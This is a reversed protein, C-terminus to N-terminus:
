SGTGHGQNLVRVVRMEPFVTEVVRQLPYKIAAVGVMLDLVRKLGLPTDDTALNFVTGVVLAGYKQFAMRHRLEHKLKRCYAMISAHTPEFQGASALCERLTQEAKVLDNRSESDELLQLIKSKAFEAHAWFDRNTLQYESVGSRAEFLLANVQRLRVQNEDFAGETESVSEPQFIRTWRKHEYKIEGGFFETHPKVLLADCRILEPLGVYMDRAFAERAVEVMDYCDFPVARELITSLYAVLADATDLQYASRQAAQQLREFEEGSLAHILPKLRQRQKEKRERFGSDHSTVFADLRTSRFITEPDVLIPYMWEIGRYDELEASACITIHKDKKLTLLFDLDVGYKSILHEPSKNAYLDVVVHQSTLLDPILFSGISNSFAFRRSRLEPFFSQIDCAGADAIRQAEITQARAQTVFDEWRDTKMATLCHYYERISVHHSCRTLFRSSLHPAGWGHRETGLLVLFVSAEQIHRFLDEVTLLSPDTKSRPHDIEDVWIEMGDPLKLEHIAARTDRLGQVPSSLFAYVM